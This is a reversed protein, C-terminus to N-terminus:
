FKHVIGFSSCVLAEGYVMFAYAKEQPAFDKTLDELEKFVVIKSDKTDSHRQLKDKVAHFIMEGRTNNIGLDECLTTEKNTEM